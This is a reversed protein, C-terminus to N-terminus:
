LAYEIRIDHVKDETGQLDDMLKSNNDELTKKEKNLKAIVGDLQTMEDRLARIENDKFSHVFLNAEAFFIFFINYSFRM